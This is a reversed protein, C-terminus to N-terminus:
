KLSREEAGKIMRDLREGTDAEADKFSGLEVINKAFLRTQGVVHGPKGCALFPEKVFGQDIDRPAGGDFANGIEKKKQQIAGVLRALCFAVLHDQRQRLVVDGVGQSKGENM